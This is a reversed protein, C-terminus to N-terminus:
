TRRTRPASPPGAESTSLRRLRGDGGRRAGRVGRSRSRPTTRRRHRLADAFRQVRMREPPRGYPMPHRVLVSACGRRRAPDARDPPEDPSKGSGTRVAVSPSWPSQRRFCGTRDRGSSVSTRAQPSRERHRTCSRTTRSTPTRRPVVETGGRETRILAELEAEPRIPIGDPYLLEGALSAPYRRHDIGPIQAATFAVVRHDPDDRFVVNFDHFDRGGAGVILVRRM